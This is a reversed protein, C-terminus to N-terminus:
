VRVIDKYDKTKKIIISKKLFENETIKWTHTNLNRRRHIVHNFRDLSYIKYGFALAERLFITDESKNLNKFKINNFIEKKFTLTSGSVYDMYRNEHNPFRLVLLDMGEIYAYVSHKGVISANTYTFANLADNLYFPGYYDDDDFKSIYPYISKEIALNLCEGLTFKEDMKYIKIDNRSKIIEQWKSIDISNNNIIIILEKISYEQSLYNNLINELSNIRNTSTIVSVGPNLNHESEINLTKLITNFRHSYTHNNFVQRQGLLSLKDRLDKSKLLKDILLITDNKNNSFNVIDDFYNKIGLSYSSIIPIGCALVEFVRRSFNTPSNDVSNVNLLIEYKKYEEVMDLYNLSPRIFPKFKSPFMNKSNKTGYFRDYITLNYKLGAELLSAMVACRDPFKNYWGGSFLVQGKKNVDKGIPNHAKPQAGFPLLYVNNHNLIIKYKSISNEDTTFVYDFLKAAEIFINFDYPDEKAWFVTPINKDKCYNVLHFLNEDKTIGLNSVKNVWEKKFGEWAAEVFLFNPDIKDIIEKWNNIGLQFFYAEYKFCNYSFEDLISVVKIKKENVELTSITDKPSVINREIMRNWLLEKVYNKYSIM